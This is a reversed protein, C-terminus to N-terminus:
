RRLRSRSFSEGGSSRPRDNTGSYRSPPPPLFDTPPAFPASGPLTLFGGAANGVMVSRRAGGSDWGQGQVDAALGYQSARRTDGSAQQHKQRTTANVRAFNWQSCDDGKTFIELTQIPAASPRSTITSQEDEEQQQQQQQQQYQPAFPNNSSLRQRAHPPSASLAALSRPVAGPSALPSNSYKPSRTGYGPSTMGSPTDDRTVLVAPPPAGRSFSASSGRNGPGGPAFVGGPVPMATQLKDPFADDHVYLRRLGPLSSSLISSALYAYYTKAASTDQASATRGTLEFRLTRLSTSALPPLGANHPLAESIKSQVALTLLYPATALIDALEAPHVGTDKLTLVSLANRTDKWALYDRLGKATVRPTDKLILEELPALAPFGDETAVLVEDSISDTQSVKLARLNTLCGLVARMTAPEVNLGTVELVELHTWVRGSALANFSREAGTVYSMKRLQPCRAEVELRLTAFAPDDSFLGEPLDVFHLDPLVAITQALEVHCYERLMYPIKLYQVFRGLRTPDDRVTRRLLRLRTQATDEPVGNHNFRGTKKRREALWAEMKCFHVPEIRVSHYLVQVATARWIRSVQACHSLDRLDCLVCANGRSSEECTDYSNDCAHPCVRAFVRALVSPPLHHLIAASRATPPFRPPQGAGAPRFEPPIDLSGKKDKKRFPLRM